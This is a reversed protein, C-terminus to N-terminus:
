DHQMREYGDSTVVVCFGYRVYGVFPCLYIHQDPEIPGTLGCRHMFRPSGYTLGSSRIPAGLPFWIPKAERFCTHAFQWYGDERGQDTIVQRVRADLEEYTPISKRDALGRLAASLAAIVCRHHALDEPYIRDGAVHTEALVHHKYSFDEMYNLKLGAAILDRLETESLRDRVEPHNQLYSNTLTMAGLPGWWSWDPKVSLMQARLGFVENLITRVEPANCTARLAALKSRMPEPDDTLQYPIEIVIADGSHVPNGWGDEPQYGITSANRGCAVWMQRQNTSAGQEYLLNSAGTRVDSEHLRGNGAYRALERFKFTMGLDELVTQAAYLEEIPEAESESTAFLSDWFGM